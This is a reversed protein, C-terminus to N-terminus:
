ITPLGPGVEFARLADQVAAIIETASDTRIHLPGEQGASTLRM